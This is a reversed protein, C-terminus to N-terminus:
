PGKKPKLKPKRPPDTAEDDVENEPDEDLLMNLKRREQPTLLKRLKAIREKEKAIKKEAAKKAEEKKRQEDRKKHEPWWRAIEPDRFIANPLGKTKTPGSGLREKDLRELETLAKCAIRALLHNREQANRLDQSVARIQDGEDYSLCPM